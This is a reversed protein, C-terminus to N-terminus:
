LPAVALARTYRWASICSLLLGLCLSLLALPHLGAALQAPFGPVIAVAVALIALYILATAVKGLGSSPIEIGAGAGYRRVTAVWFERLLFIVLLAFPIGGAVVLMALMIATTFSDAAQDLMAGLATVQQLRRAMYGDLFDTLGALTGIVLAPAQHGALYLAVSVTVGGIRSFSLLNPVTALDVGSILPPSPHANPMPM